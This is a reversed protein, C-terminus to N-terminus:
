PGTYGPALEGDIIAPVPKGGSELESVDPVQGMLNDGVPDVWNDLSVFQSTYDVISLGSNTCNAVDVPRLYHEEELAKIVVEVSNASDDKYTANSGAPISFQNRVQLWEGGYEGTYDPDNWPCNIETGTEGEFCQEPIGWLDGFGGYELMYTKGNAAHEYKISLPQDFSVVGNGDELAVLKNWSEKGSEWRYFVEANSELQWGCTENPDWDCQVLTPDNAIASAPVMAGTWVGWSTGNSPYAVSNASSVSDKYMTMTNADFVYTYATNGWTQNTEDINTNIDSPDPCQNYCKLAVGDLASATTSGPLVEQESYLTVTTNNDTLTGSCQYFQGGNQWDPETCNEMVVRVSGGLSESWFYLDPWYLQTLNLSQGVSAASDDWYWNADRAAIIKFASGNWNVLYENGNDPDNYNLNIGVIKSLETQERVVKRLKGPYVKVTYPETQDIDYEAWDFRYVTQNNLAAVDFNEYDMSNISVGWYGAWGEVVEDGDYYGIPLGSSLDVRAGNSDYLGYRWANVVPNDRDFCKATAGVNQRMFYSDNYALNFTKTIQEPGAPGFDFDTISAAGKGSTSDKSMIVNENFDIDIIQGEINESFSGQDTFALINEDNTNVFSKMIGRMVYDASLDAQNASSGIPLMKFNMTFVGFPPVETKDKTVVIRAFIIGNMDDEENPIWAQIVMPSTEDTRIADIAWYEYEPVDVQSQGEGEQSNGAGAERASCLASNIQAVYPGANVMIDYRTQEIMCLIENPTGFAEVARDNVWVDTEDVNYDAGASFGGADIARVLARAFTFDNISTADETADVVSVRAAIDLTDLGTAGRTAIYNPDAAIAEAISITESDTSVSDGGGGGGGCGTIMTVVAFLSAICLANLKNM